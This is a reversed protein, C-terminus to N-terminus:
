AEPEAAEAERAELTTRLRELEAALAEDHPALGAAEGLAAEAEELRDLRELALGLGQLLEPAREGQTLATQFENLAEEARGNLLLVWGLRMRFFWDEPKLEVAQRTLSLAIERDRTRDKYLWGLWCLSAADMPNAKVAAKFQRMAEELKGARALAEGLWRHVVPRSEDLGAARGLSQSAKLPQDQDLYLQGLAFLVAFDQDNLQGARELAQRAEELRGLRRRVLGLNYWAMFDEPAREAVREFLRCAEELRGQQGYSVGLSNLVNLNDPDVALAREYESVAGKLDGRHYLRDGSVNLSVANFLVVPEAQPFSAHDLAKFAREIAEAPPTELFPYRALGVSLSQELEREAAERLRWGLELAAEDGPDSGFFAVADVGARGMAAPKLLPVGLDALRTLLRDSEKQGVLARRAVLGDIRALLVLFPRGAEALRQSLVPLSRSSVLGTAQDLVVKVERGALEMVREDAARLKLAGTEEALVLGDGVQVPFRPDELASIEATAQEHNVSLLTLEAKYVPSAQESLHLVYFRAGEEVGLSRGMNVVVRGLPLVEIVKGLRRRVEAPSLFTGPGLAAAQDLARGARAELERALDEVENEGELWPGPLDEPFAAAAGVLALNIKEGELTQFPKLGAAWEALKLRAAEASLGPELWAFAFEGMRAPCGSRGAAAILEEALRRHVLRLFRRGHAQILPETEIQKVLILAVDPRASGEAAEEAVELRPAAQGLREVASKLLRGLEELLKLRSFLGTVPDLVLAQGLLFKELSLRALRSLFPGLRSLRDLSTVAELRAVARVQGEASLPLFVRKREFDFVPRGTIFAQSAPPEDCTERTILMISEYAALGALDEELDRTLLALDSQTLTPPFKM